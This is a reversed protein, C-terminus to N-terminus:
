QVLAVWKIDVVHQGQYIVVV